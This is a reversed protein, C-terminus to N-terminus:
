RVFSTCRLSSCPVRWRSRGCEFQRFTLSQCSLVWAGLANVAQVIRAQVEEVTPATAVTDAAEALSIPLNETTM